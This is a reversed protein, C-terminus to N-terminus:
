EISLSALSILILKDNQGRTQAHGGFGADNPLDFRGVAARMACFGTVPERQVWRM